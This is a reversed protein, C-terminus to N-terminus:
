QSASTQAAMRATLMDIIQSKENADAKEWLEAMRARVDSAQKYGQLYEQAQNHRRTEGLKQAELKLSAMTQQMFSDAETKKAMAASKQAQEIYETMMERAARSNTAAEALLKPPIPVGAQQLGMWIQLEIMRLTSNESTHTLELNWQMSRIDRLVARQKPVLGQGNPAPAVEVVMGGRVLYKKRNALIAEIQDDPMARAITEIVRRIIGKQAIEYNGIPDRVVQRSKHYHLYAAAASQQFEAATITGSAPLGDIAQVLEVAGRARTMVAENPPSPTRVIIRNNALADKTAKANGGPRRLEDVFAEDDVTAGVESIVGVAVSQAIHEIELSKSKNLEMQPDFLNRVAGYPTGDEEDIMFCFDEVSFGDFPGAEEYERLIRTGIFDCVKVRDVEVEEFSFPAGLLMAQRLRDMEDATTLKRREGTMENVAYREKETVKYEYRIVRAKNNHRDWYYQSAESYDYDGSSAFTELSIEGNRGDGQDDSADMAQSLSSWESAFDPYERQFEDKRFWRSWFLHRADSRDPEISSADWHIEGFTVRHLDIKIWGPRRTDPTVSVQMACEGHICGSRLWGSSKSEWGADQLVQEKVAEIIEAHFKDDAGSGTVVPVRQADSYIGLISDVKSKIINFTYAPRLNDILYQRDEPEWQGQNRTNHYYRSARHAEAHANRAHEVAAEFFMRAERLKEQRSEAAEDDTSESEMEPEVYSAETM